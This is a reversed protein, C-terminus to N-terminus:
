LISKEGKEYHKECDMSVMRPAGGVLPGFEAGWAANSAGLEGEEAHRTAEYATWDEKKEWKELLVVSNKTADLAVTMSLFGPQTATYKLGHPHETFLSFADQLKGPVIPIEVLAVGYDTEKALAGVDPVAATTASAAADDNDDDDHETSDRRVSQFTKKFMNFSTRRARAGHSPPAGELDTALQAVAASVLLLSSRRRDGGDSGSECSSSGEKQDGESSGFGLLEETLPISMQPICCFDIWLFSKPLREKWQKATVIKNGGSGVQFKWDGEVKGIEGSQLRRFVTQLTELQTGASDAHANSTGTFSPSSYSTNPFILHSVVVNSLFHAPLIDACTSSQAACVSRVM